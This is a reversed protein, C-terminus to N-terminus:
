ASPAGNGDPKVRIVPRTLKETEKIFDDALQKFFAAQVSGLETISRSHLIQDQLRLYQEWGNSFLRYAESHSKYLGGFLELIAKQWTSLAAQYAPVASQLPTTRQEKGEGFGKDGYALQLEKANGVFNDYNKKWFDIIELYLNVFPLNAYTNTHVSTQATM